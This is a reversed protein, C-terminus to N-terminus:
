PASRTYTWVDQHEWWGHPAHRVLQLGGVEDVTQRVWAPLSVNVGWRELHDWGYDEFAFGTRRARDVLDAPETVGYDGEWGHCVARLRDVASPDRALLDLTRQGHTTFILMGGPRLRDRYFALTPAWADADVHPLFSGSWVLDFGDGVGEVTWLPVASRVARAGFASACFEPAGPRLEM